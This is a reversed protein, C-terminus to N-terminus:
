MDFTRKDRTSALVRKAGLGWCGRCGSSQQLMLIVVQPPAAAPCANRLRARRKGLKLSVTGSRRVRGSGVLCGAAFLGGFDSATVQHSALLKWSVKLLM